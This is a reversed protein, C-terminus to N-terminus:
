QPIEPGDPVLLAHDRAEVYEPSDAEIRDARDLPSRGLVRHPPHDPTDALLNRRPSFKFGREDPWDPGPPEDEQHARRIMYARHQVCLAQTEALDLARDARRTRAARAREIRMARINAQQQEVGYVHGRRATLGKFSM